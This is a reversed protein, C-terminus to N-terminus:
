LSISKLTHGDLDLLSIAGNDYLAVSATGDKPISPSGPNLLTIFSGNPTEAYELRKKHTHGSAFITGAPLHPLSEETQNPRHGHTLFFTFGDLEIQSYAAMIPFELVMQDVEAECNGRIATIVEANKNLMAIVEKPAYGEPLDNRPGHYLIDGLIILRDCNNAKFLDLVQSTAIASGHLDSAFLAKLDTDKRGVGAM